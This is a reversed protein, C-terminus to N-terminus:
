PSAAQGLNATLSDHIFRRGREAEPHLGHSPDRTAHPGTLVLGRGTLGLERFPALDLNCCSPGLKLACEGTRLTMFTSSSRQLANRNVGLSEPIRPPRPSMDFMRGASIRGSAEKHLCRRVDPTLGAIAAVRHCCRQARRWTGESPHPSSRSWSSVAWLLAAQPRHCLLSFAKVDAFKVLASLSACWDVHAIRGLWPSSTAWGNWVCRPM